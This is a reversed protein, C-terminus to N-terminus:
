VSDAAKRGNEASGIGLWSDVGSSGLMTGGVVSGIDSASLGAASGLRTGWESSSSLKM